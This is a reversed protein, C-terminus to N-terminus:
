RAPNTTSQLILLGKTLKEVLREALSAESDILPQEDEDLLLRFRNEYDLEPDAIVDGLGAMHARRECEEKALYTWDKDEQWPIGRNKLYLCDPSDFVDKSKRGASTKARVVYKWYEWEKTHPAYFVTVPITKGDVRVDAKIKQEVTPRPSEAGTYPDTPSVEKWSRIDADLQSVSEM